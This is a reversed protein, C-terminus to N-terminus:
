FANRGPNMLRDVILAISLLSQALELGSLAPRPGAGIPIEVTDGPELLLDPQQNKRVKDYNFAIIQTKTPDGGGFHRFIRGENAKAAPSLGAGESVAQTLTIPKTYPLKGPRIFAGNLNVFQEPSLNQVYIIDDQSVLINSTPDGSEIKDYDFIFPKEVGFRRITVVRRDATASPGGARSIVERLETPLGLELPVIGPRQVAGEVKVQGTPSVVKPPVFLFDKDLLAPNQTEDPLQGVPPKMWRLFNYETTISKGNPDKRIVRVRTLDANANDSAGFTTLAEALTTNSNIPNSGPKTVAGTILINPRPVNTISVKVQPDRLLTKVKGAILDAAQSPTLDQVTVPGVIKMNIAGSPDVKFAGSLDQEIGNAATSVTVNLDFGPKIKQNPDFNTDPGLQGVTGAAAGADQAKASGTAVGLILLAILLLPLLSSFAKRM